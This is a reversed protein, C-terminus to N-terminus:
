ISCKAAFPGPHCQLYQYNGKPAGTANIQCSGLPPEVLMELYEFMAYYLLLGSFTSFCQLVTEIECIAKVRRGDNLM